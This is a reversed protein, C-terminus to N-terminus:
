KVHFNHILSKNVVQMKGKDLLIRRGRSLFSNAQNQSMGLAKAIKYTSWGEVYSLSFVGKLYNPLLKIYSSRFLSRRHTWKYYKKRIQYMETAVYQPTRGVKASIQPIKHQKQRFFYIKHQIDTLSNVFKPHFMRFDILAEHPRGEQVHSVFERKDKMLQYVHEYAGIFLADALEAATTSGTKIAAMCGESYADFLDDGDIQPYKKSISYTVPRQMGALYPGIEAKTM